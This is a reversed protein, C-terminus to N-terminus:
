KKGYTRLTEILTKVISAADHHTLGIYFPLALTRSGVAETIPFDGRQYRYKKRYYDILHIPPLYPRTSIGRRELRRMVEPRNIKKNLLQIVYVFWSSNNGQSVAPVTVLQGYPRLLETYRRAINRRQEIMHRLRELQALGLAASMEDLRYNYGLYRHDLWQDGM